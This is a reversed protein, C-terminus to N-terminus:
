DVVVIMYIIGAFRDISGNKLFLEMKIWKIFNPGNKTRFFSWGFMFAYVMWSLVVELLGCVELLILLCYSVVFDDFM